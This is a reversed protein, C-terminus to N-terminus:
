RDAYDITAELYSFYSTCFLINVTIFVIVCRRGRRIITETKSSDFTEMSSSNRSGHRGSLNIDNVSIKRMDTLDTSDRIRMYLEQLIWCQVLGLDIKLIPM